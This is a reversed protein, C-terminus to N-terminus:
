GPGGDEALNDWETPESQIMYNPTLRMTKMSELGRILSYDTLILNHM